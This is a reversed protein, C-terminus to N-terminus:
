RGRVQTINAARGRTRSNGGLMTTGLRNYYSSMSENGRRQQSTGRVDRGNGVQGDSGQRVCAM